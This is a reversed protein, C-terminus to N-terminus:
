QALKRFLDPHRDFLESGIKKAEARDIRRIEEPCNEVARAFATVEAREEPPLKKILEIVEAASM